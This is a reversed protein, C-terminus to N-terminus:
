GLRGPACVCSMSHFRRRRLVPSSWTARPDVAGDVDISRGGVYGSGRIRSGEAALRLVFWTSDLAICAHSGTCSDIAINPVWTGVFASSGAAAAPSPTVPMSTGCAASFAYGIAILRQYRTKM